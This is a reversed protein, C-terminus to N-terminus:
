LPACHEDIWGEIISVISEDELAAHIKLRRHHTRGIECSLRSREPSGKAEKAPTPRPPTARPPTPKKAPVLGRRLPKALPLAASVQKPPLLEYSPEHFDDSEDEDEPDDDPADLPDDEPDDGPPAFEDVGFVEENETRLPKEWNGGVRLGGGTPPKAKKKLEIAM